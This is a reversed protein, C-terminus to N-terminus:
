ALVAPCGRQSSRSVAEVVRSTPSFSVNSQAACCATISGRNGTVNRSAIPLNTVPVTMARSLFGAKLIGDVTPAASQREWGNLSRSKRGDAITYGEL